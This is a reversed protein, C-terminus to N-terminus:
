FLPFLECCSVDCVVGGLVGFVEGVCSKGGVVGEGCVISGVELCCKVVMCCPVLLFTYSEKFIDPNPQPPLQVRFEFRTLYKQSSLM